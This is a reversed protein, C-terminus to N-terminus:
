ECERIRLVYRTFFKLSLVLEREEIIAKRLRPSPHLLVKIKGLGTLGDNNKNLAEARHEEREEEDEKWIAM